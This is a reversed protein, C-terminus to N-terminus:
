RSWSILGPLFRSPADEIRPLVRAAYATPDHPSAPISARYRTLGADGGLQQASVAFGSTDWHEVWLEVSVEDACLEGLTADIDVIVRGGPSLEVNHVRVGVTPWAGVFRAITAALRRAREADADLLYASRVASPIYRDEVYQQVMRHSRWTEALTAMSQRVSALWRRPIGADDRDFFCPVIDRELREYLSEADLADQAEHDDFHEATGICWGIPPASASADNWVEDWWGDLTSLNLAGNVGAKMGGIGCAELPRRPTNLWLDVGQALARDATLDFDEIFVLRDSLGRASAFDTVSRLLRKGHEDNPHAKGAFVIQVPRKEDSLLRALRDPDRLFLTPRKYAVFRGVFGITLAEPDLLHEVEQPSGTGTGRHQLLARRRTRTAAVLRARAARSANWLEVDDADLLSAWSEPEGPVRRWEEGLQRDLLRDIEPTIWSQLHVGNTVHGIPVEDLPLRPWLGGWQQRTVAGHLRSVGNHSDTMRLALVTPCFTDDPDEPRYRGLALLEDLELGLLEAYPALYPGALSPPFYDHGANVPTHTTFTMAAAAARRAPEFGLGHRSAISAVHQLTAFATHGENLHLVTPEHGLLELARLGGVGLVLEQQIRTELTGGYLRATIARDDLDNEPVDTDLLYLWTRGVPATWIRAVVDRGPFPVSVTLPRSDTGRVLSVPLTSPDLVEWAEQQLGDDDLWQHSSERYLLGVGLLPVGLASCSKLQEGAIAGLGGAFIPLSDTLAFEASFYAVVMTPASGHTTPYWTIPADDLYDSRDEVVARALATLGPREGLRAEVAKPGTEFLLRLPWELEGPTADTFLGAFLARVDMHWTWRLNEAVAVLETFTVPPAADDRRVLDEKV